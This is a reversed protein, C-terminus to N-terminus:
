EEDEYYFSDNLVVSYENKNQAVRSSRTHDATGTQLETDNYTAISGCVAIRGFQKMQPLVASSFKGGVQLCLFLLELIILNLICLQKFLNSM